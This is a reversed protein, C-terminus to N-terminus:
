KLLFFFRKFPKFIQEEQKLDIFEQITLNENFIEDVRLELCKKATRNKLSNLIDLVYSAKEKALGILDDVKGGGILHFITEAWDESPHSQGYSDDLHHVYHSNEGIQPTYSM